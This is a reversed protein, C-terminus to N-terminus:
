RAGGTPVDLRDLEAAFSNAVAQDHAPLVHAYLQLTVSVHAHGLRQTVVKPSAGSAIMWTAASHRLGHVGIVPFGLAEAHAKFQRTVTQPWLPSGDPWTYVYDGRWGGGMRLREAAQCRRWSKLAALTTADVSVSRRGASSKPEGEVVVGGAITRQNTITLVGRELDVDAWRLGLAEGRRMGTTALLRWMPAWRDDAVHALFARLQEATWARSQQAPLKPLELGHAVNRSVLNLRQADGLAKSLVAHVNRVTKPALGRDALVALFRAITASDLARLQTGGIGPLQDTGIVHKSVARRYSDYTTLRVNRQATPLWTNTLYQSLTLRTPTVLEGGRARAKEADLAEEAAKRTKFGRRRIQKRKGDITQVDFVFGWGSGSRKVSGKV